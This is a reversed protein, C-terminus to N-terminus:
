EQNSQGLLLLKSCGGDEKLAELVLRLLLLWAEESTWIHIRYSREESRRPEPSGLEERNHEWGQPCHSNDFNGKQEELDEVSIYGMGQM